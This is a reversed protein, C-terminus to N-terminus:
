FLLEFWDFLLVLNLSHSYSPVCSFTHLSPRTNMPKPFQIHNILEDVTEFARYAEHYKPHQEPLEGHAMYLRGLLFWGRWDKAGQPLSTAKVLMATAGPIDSFKTHLLWGLQQLLPSSDCQAIASTIDSSPTSLPVSTTYTSSSCPLLAAEYSERADAWDGKIELVHGLEILLQRRLEGTCGGKDSWGYTDHKGKCNPCCGSKDVSEDTGEQDMADEESEGDDEEEKDDLWCIDPVGLVSADNIKGASGIIRCSCARQDLATQFAQLAITAGELDGSRKLLCALKLRAGCTHDGEPDLLISARLAESSLAVDGRRAQLLGIGFRDSRFFLLPFFFFLAFCLYVRWVSMCEQLLLLFM